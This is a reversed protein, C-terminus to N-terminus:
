LPVQGRRIQSSAGVEGSDLLMSRAVARLGRNGARERHETMWPGAGHTPADGNRSSKTAKVLARRPRAGLTYEPALLRGHGDDQDGTGAAANAQGGRQVEGPEAVVDVRPQPGQRRPALEGLGELPLPEGEMGEREVHVVVGRDLPRDVVDQAGGPPDVDEHVVRPDSAAAGDLVNRHVPSAAQELGVVEAGDPHDARHEGAHALAPLAGDHVDAGDGAAHGDGAVAV